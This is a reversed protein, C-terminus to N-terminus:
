PISLQQGVTLSANVSIGNQQAILSPDIDGFACAVGFVTEDSSTVTYTTPHNRLMRDGPFPNGTQPIKIVLGPYVTQSDVIGNLALIEDPDVNFRRAICYVFEGNQLTYTAPKSGSPILTATPGSVALTATPTPTNPPNVIPTATNTAAQPTIGIPTNTATGAPAPTGSSLALATGTGFVEVDSMGPTQAIPTSFLNQNSIPTNTAVPAQSYPTKCASVSVAVVLLIFAVMAGRKISAM